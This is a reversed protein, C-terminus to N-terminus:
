LAPSNNLPADEALAELCAKIAAGLAALKTEDVAVKHTGYYRANVSGAFRHAELEELKHNLYNVEQELKTKIGPAVMQLDNLGVKIAHLAATGAPASDLRKM